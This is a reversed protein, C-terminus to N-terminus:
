AVVFLFLVYAHTVDGLCLFYSLGLRTDDRFCLLRMSITELSFFRSSDLFTSNLHAIMFM